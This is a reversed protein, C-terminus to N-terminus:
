TSRWNGENRGFVTRTEPGKESCYQIKQNEVIAPPTFSRSRAFGKGCVEEIKEGVLAFSAVSGSFSHKKGVTVPLTKRAASVAATDPGLEESFQIKQKEVIAPLTLLHSRAFGMEEIPHDQLFRTIHAIETGMPFIDCLGQKQEPLSLLKEGSAVQTVSPSREELRTCVQSLKQEVLVTAPVVTISLPKEHVPVPACESAARVTATM